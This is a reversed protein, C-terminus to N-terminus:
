YSKSSIAEKLTCTDTRRLIPQQLRQPPKPLMNPLQLAQIAAKTKSEKKAGVSLWSVVDIASSM